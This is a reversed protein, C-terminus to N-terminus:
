GYYHTRRCVYTSSYFGKSYGSVYFYPRISEGTSAGGCSNRAWSSVKSACRSACYSQCSRCSTCRYITGFNRVVMNGCYAKCTCRMNSSCSSHYGDAPTCAVAVIFLWVAIQLFGAM